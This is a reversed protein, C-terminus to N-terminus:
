RNPALAWNRMLSKQRGLTESPATIGAWKLPSLNVASLRGVLNIHQGRQSTSAKVLANQYKGLLVVANM